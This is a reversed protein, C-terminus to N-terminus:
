RCVRWWWTRVGTKWRALQSCVVRGLWAGYRREARAQAGCSCPGVPLAPANHVACDSTHQVDVCESEDISYGASKLLVDVSVKAAPLVTPQTCACGVAAVSRVEDSQLAAYLAAVEQRLAQGEALAAAGGGLSPLPKPVEVAAGSADADPTSPPTGRILRWNGPHCEVQTAHQLVFPLGNRHCVSGAPLTFTQLDAM